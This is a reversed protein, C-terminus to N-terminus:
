LFIGLKEEAYKKTTEMDKFQEFLNFTHCVERLLREATERDGLEFRSQAEYLTLEPLVRLRRTEICADKGVTYIKKVDEYRGLLTFAKALCTIVQPYRDGKEGIDVCNKEINKKLGYWLTIAREHEGSEFYAIALMNFMKFATGTLLYTEVENESLELGTTKLGEHLIEFVKKPDEKMNIANAAKAALLFQVNLKESKFEKDKELKTILLGAEKTNKQTLFADLVNIVKQEEAMKNTIFMANLVDANVGLKELLAELNRKSPMINGSEVRSLSAADMISNALEEQSIKRQRRFHKIVEGIRYKGM